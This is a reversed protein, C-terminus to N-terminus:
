TKHVRFYGFGSFLESYREEQKEKSYNNWAVLRWQAKVGKKEPLTRSGAFIKQSSIYVYNNEWATNKKLPEM